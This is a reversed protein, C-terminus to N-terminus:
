GRELETTVGARVTDTSVVVYDVRSYVEGFGRRYDEAGRVTPGGDLLRVVKM